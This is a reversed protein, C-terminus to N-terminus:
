HNTYQPHPGRACGGQKHHMMIMIVVTRTQQQQRGDYQTHETRPTHSMNSPKTKYFKYLLSGDHTPERLNPVIIKEYGTEQKSPDTSSTSLVLDHWVDVGSKENM